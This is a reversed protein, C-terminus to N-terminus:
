PTPPPTPLPLGTSTTSSTSAPTRTPAPRPRATARRRPTPSPSPTPAPTPTATPSPTPATTAPAQTVAQVGGTPAPASPTGGHAHVLLAAGAATSAVAVALVSAGVLRRRGAALTPVPSPTGTVLGALARRAAAEWGPGLGERATRRVAVAMAAASPPRRLPDPSLGAVLVAALSPPFSAEGLGTGLWAAVATASWIDAATTAAGAAAREPASFAADVRGRAPVGFGALRARGAPTVWVREPSVDGHVAGVRHAAELAELLDLLLATAAGAGLPPALSDLPVGEPAESLLAVRDGEVDLVLPRLLCPTQVSRLAAVEAALAAVASPDNHLTGPLPRIVVERGGAARGRGGAAAAARIPGRDPPAPVSPRM